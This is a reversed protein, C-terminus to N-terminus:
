HQNLMFLFSSAYADEKKLNQKLDQKINERFVNM